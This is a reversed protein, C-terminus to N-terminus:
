SDSRLAWPMKVERAAYFWTILWQFFMTVCLSWAAGILGFSQILVFVLTVNIIGMSITVRAVLSTRKSFFIYNTTMLYMGRFAQALVMWGVLQSAPQYKEGVFLNLATPGILFAVLACVFLFVFYCYTFKVVEIKERTVDRELREFLWPMFAKNVSDLLIGLILGFQVAVMYYGAKELGLMSSIIARDITLLLFAGLIHPILPVGYNLAEKILDPKWSMALLNDRRLLLLALFGFLLTSVSYGTLRGDVGLPFAVVLLLSLVMNMCGLAVQFAGFFLAKKRVQWQGLRIQIVFNLVCFLVGCLVWKQSLGIIGSVWGSIPAVILFVISSSVVLLSLCAGIFNRMGEEPQKYDYYKRSAASHVSLGCLAGLLSVWVQFVAVEGYESPELYRTLVPLLFFPISSNIISATLYTAAGGALSSSRIKTLFRM